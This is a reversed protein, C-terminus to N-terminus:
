FRWGISVESIPLLTHAFFRIIDGNMIPPTQLPLTEAGSIMERAYWNLIYASEFRAVWRRGWWYALGVGLNAGIYRYISVESQEQPTNFRNFTQRDQDNRGLSLDVFAYTQFKELYDTAWFHIQGGLNLNVSHNLTRSWFGTTLNGVFTTQPLRYNLGARLQIRRNIAYRYELGPLWKRFIEQPGVVNFRQPFAGHFNLALSHKFVPEQAFVSVLLCLLMASLFLKKM